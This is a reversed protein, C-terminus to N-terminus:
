DDKKLQELCTLTAAQMLYARIEGGPSKEDIRGLFDDVAHSVEHALLALDCARKKKFDTVLIFSKIAVFDENALTFCFYKSGDDYCKEGTERKVAKKLDDFKRFAAIEFSPFRDFVDNM